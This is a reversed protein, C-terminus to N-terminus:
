TPVRHPLLPPRNSTVPQHPDLRPQEGVPPSALFPQVVMGACRLPLRPPQPRHRRRRSQGASTPTATPTEAQPPPSNCSTAPHSSTATSSRCTSGDTRHPSAPCGAHNPRRCPTTRRTRARTAACRAPPSRCATTKGAHPPRGAPPSRLHSVQSFPWQSLERDLPALRDGRGFCRRHEISGPQAVFRRLYRQWSEFVTGMGEPQSGSPFLLVFFARSPDHLIL